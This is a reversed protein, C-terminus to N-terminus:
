STTRSAVIRQFPLGLTGHGAWRLAGRVAARRWTAIGPLYLSRVLLDADAASRLPFAFRRTEDATVALDHAAFLGPLQLAIDPHPFPLSRRGLAALLAAYRLTDASTRPRQAPLLVILRGGPRLVRAAERVSAVPDDVVMLSMVALVTAVVGDDFPLRDSSAMMVPQRGRETAVCLEPRSPDVGIWHRCHPAMPGSGCGVDVVPGEGCVEQAVWAYPDFGDADRSRTLIEETVGANGDHFAGVYARWENASRDARVRSM